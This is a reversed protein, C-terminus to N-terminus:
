SFLRLWRAAMHLFCLDLYIWVSHVLLRSCLHLCQTLASLLFCKSGKM